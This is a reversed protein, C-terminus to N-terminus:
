LHGHIHKHRQPHDDPQPGALTMQTVLHHMIKALRFDSWHPPISRVGTSATQWSELLRQGDQSDDVTYPSLVGHPGDSDFAIVDHGRIAPCLNSIM